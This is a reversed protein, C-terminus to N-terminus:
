KGFARLIYCLNLLVEVLHIFSMHLGLPGGQLSKKSTSAYEDILYYIHSVKLVGWYDSYIIQESEIYEIPESNKRM